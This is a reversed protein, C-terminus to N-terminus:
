GRLWADADVSDAAEEEAFCVSGGHSLQEVGQVCAVSWDASGCQGGSGTGNYRCHCGEDARHGGMRPVWSGAAVLAGAANSSIAQGPTWCFSFEGSMAEIVGSDLMAAAHCVDKAAAEIIAFSARVAIYSMTARNSLGALANVKAVHVAMAVAENFCPEDVCWDAFDVALQMSAALQLTKVDVVDCTSTWHEVPLPTPCVHRMLVMGGQNAAKIIREVPSDALSLGRMSLASFSACGCGLSVGEFTEGELLKLEVVREMVRIFADTSIYKGITQVM